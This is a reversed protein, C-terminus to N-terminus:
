NSVTNTDRLLPFTDLESLTYAFTTFHISSSILSSNNNLLEKRFNEKFLSNRSFNFFVLIEDTQIEFRKLKSTAMWHIM